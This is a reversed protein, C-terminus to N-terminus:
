TAVKGVPLCSQAAFGAACDLLTFSAGGHVTGLYNGHAEAFKVRVRVVGEEVSVVKIGCYDAFPSVITGDKVAQIFQLGTHTRVFEKIDLTHVPTNREASM